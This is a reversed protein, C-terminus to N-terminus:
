IFPFVNKILLDSLITKLHYYEEFGSSSETCVRGILIGIAKKKKKASISFGIRFNVYISLSGLYAFCYQFTLFFKWHRYKRMAFSVVFSCYDFYHPILM